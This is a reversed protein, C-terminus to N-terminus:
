HRVPLHAPPDPLVGQALTTGPSPGLKPVLRRPCVSNSDARCWAVTPELRDSNWRMRCSLTISSSVPSIWWCGESVECVRVDNDIVQIPCSMWIDNIKAFLRPRLQVTRCQGYIHQQFSPVFHWIQKDVPNPRPNSRHPESYYLQQIRNQGLVKQRSVASPTSKIELHKHVFATFLVTNCPVLILTRNVNTM